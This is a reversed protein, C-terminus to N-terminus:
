RSGRDYLWPADFQKEQLREMGAWLRQWVRDLTNGLGRTFRGHQESWDRTLFPDTM